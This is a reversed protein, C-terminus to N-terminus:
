YFKFLKGCKEGLFYYIVQYYELWKLDYTAVPIEMEQLRSIVEAKAESSPSSPSFDSLLNLETNDVTAIDLYM